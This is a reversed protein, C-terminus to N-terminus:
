QKIYTMNQCLKISFVNLVWKVKKIRFYTFIFIIKVFIKKSDVDVWEAADEWVIVAVVVEVEESVELEVDAEV